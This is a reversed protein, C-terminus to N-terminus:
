FPMPEEVYMPSMSKLIEVVYDVHEEKLNAGAILRIRGGNSPVSPFIFPTSLIRKEYLRKSINITNLSNGGVISTIPTRSNSLEFGSYELAESIREKYNWMIKSRDQFDEDIIDLVKDLGGLVAPPIATSYILHSSFYKLYEIIVKPGGVLGGTNAMAKGLSATYIGRYDRIEEFELIGKGSKGIVGIGHSDDVIPIADYRDCLEVIGKLPAISGETSFVSETIVFVQGRVRSRRLNKELSDLDNHKFPRIKCGVCRVGEILSSHAFQDIIVIDEKNVLVSFIGNNAQYCSPYIILSDLNLFNKLKQEVSQYCDPYGSAIPTACMSTGYEQMVAISANIVQKDCALGLYNNSALNIFNKNEVIIPDILGSQLSPYYPNFDANNFVEFGKILKALYKSHRM